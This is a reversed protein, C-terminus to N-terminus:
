SVFKRWQQKVSMPVFRLDRLIDWLIAESWGMGRQYFRQGEKTSVKTPYPNVFKDSARPGEHAMSLLYWKRGWSYRLSLLVM